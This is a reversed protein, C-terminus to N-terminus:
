TYDIAHALDRIEASISLSGRKQIRGNNISLTSQVANSVQSQPYVVSVLSSIHVSSLSTVNPTKVIAVTFFVVEQSTVYDSPLKGVNRLVRSDADETYFFSNLLSCASVAQLSLFGSIKSAFNEGCFSIITLGGHFNERNNIKRIMSWHQWQVSAM